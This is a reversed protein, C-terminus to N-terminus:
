DLKATSYTVTMQGQNVTATGAASRACVLHVTSAGAATVTFGRTDTWTSALTTSGGGTLGVGVANTPLTGPVTNLVVVCNVTAGNVTVINATSNVVAFGDKPITLPVSLITKLATDTLTNAATTQDFDIGEAGPQAAAIAADVQTKTYVDASNAKPTTAAAIAATVDTSNAKPAVAAAIAADTTALATAVATDTLAKTYYRDDHNHDVTYGVVDILVDAAATPSGMAVWVQVRGDSTLDVTAANPEIAGATFNVTSTTPKGALGGARVTLFGDGTPTVVTVNILVSTAGAPVVTEKSPGAATAVDVSGTVRVDRPADSTFKGALGLGSRTDVIRKSEVTVTVSKEGSDVVAQALGMGGAGLAIAVAAGIASWRM